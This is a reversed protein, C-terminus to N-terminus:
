KDADLSKIETSESTTLFYADSGSDNDANCRALVYYWNKAPASFGMAIAKPGVTGTLPTNTGSQVVYACRVSGGEPPRIKLTKWSAPLLGISQGGASPAAPWTASENVGTSLYQGNETAYQDQRVRFEAFFENVESANTSKRKSDSFVPIAIAALVGILAIVVLMEILTFGAEARRRM